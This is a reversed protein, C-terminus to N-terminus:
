RSDARESTKGDSIGLEALIKAKIDPRLWRGTELLSVEAQRCGVLDAVDVQRLGRLHRVAKAKDKLKFRGGKVDFQFVM